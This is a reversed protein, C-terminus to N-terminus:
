ARLVFVTGAVVLAGGALASAPLAEGLFLAGWLIGFAPILFTVTLARTPGVDALLRFYLVYAVAGSLLGLALVAGIVGMGPAAAPPSLAVFPALMVGAIVQTGIAMGRAPADGAFRKVYAGVIGYLLAAGLAAGIALAEFQVGPEPRSILFVGAVGLALGALRRATLREGLLPWAVLAGWIPSTANLVASLGAPLSLAAYSFLVFPLASNLVGVIAYQRGHRRWQADFGTAAGYAALVAGAILMRADATLVPGLVPAAIRMFMFSAGWIAALAVLRGLDAPRM